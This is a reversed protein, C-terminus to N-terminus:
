QTNGQRCPCNCGRNKMCNGNMGNMRFRPGRMYKSREEPTMSAMRKQWEARFADREEPTKTCLTGRMKALDETSMSSFDTAFALGGALIAGMIVTGLLRKTRKKNM